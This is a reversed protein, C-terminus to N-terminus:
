RPLVRLTNAPLGAPIVRLEALLRRREQADDTTHTLDGTFVVFDPKEPLANVAAVAKRLTVKADPNPAGEFGWHTDSLQVFYFDDYAAAPTKGDAALVVRGLGSAFVVGGLGALKLFDRRRDDM